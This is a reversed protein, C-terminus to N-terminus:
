ELIGIKIPKNEKILKDIRASHALVKEEEESLEDIWGSKAIDTAKDQELIKSKM